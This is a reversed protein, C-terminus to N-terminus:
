VQSQVRELLMTQETLEIIKYERGTKYDESPLSPQGYMYGSSEVSEIQMSLLNEEKDFKWKGSWTHINPDMGCEASYYDILRGNAQFELHDGGVLNLRGPNQEEELTPVIKRLLLGGKRAEPIDVFWVGRILDVRLGNTSTM